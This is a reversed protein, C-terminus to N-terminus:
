AQPQPTLKDKIIQARIQIVDKLSLYLNWNTWNRKDKSVWREWCVTKETKNRQIRTFLKDKSGYLTISNGARLEKVTNAKMAVIIEPLLPTDQAITTFIKNKMTPLNIVHIIFAM